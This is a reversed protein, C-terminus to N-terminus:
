FSYSIGAQAGFTPSGSGFVVNPGAFLGFRDSLFAHVSPAIKAGWNTETDSSGEPFSIGCVANIPINVFLHKNIDIRASPGFDIVCGWPDLLGANLSFNANAGVHLIGWHSLSSIVMGLGYSGSEKPYKYEGIQYDAVVFINHYVINGDSDTRNQAKACLMSLLAIGFVLLKKM